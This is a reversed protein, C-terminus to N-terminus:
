ACSSPQIAERITTTQGDTATAVIRVTDGQTNNRDCTLLATWEDQNATDTGIYSARYTIEAGEDNARYVTVSKIGKNGGKAKSSATINLRVKSSQFVESKVLKLAPPAIAATTATATPTPTASATPTPTASASATPSPATSASPEPASSATASPAPEPTAPSYPALTVRMKKKGEPSKKGFTVVAVTLVREGSQEAPKVLNVRVPYSRTTGAVCTPKCDNVEYVGRGKARGNSWGSWKMETLMSNADACTFVLDTPKIELTGCNNVKTRSAASAAGTGVAVMGAGLAVTAVLATASRMLNRNM